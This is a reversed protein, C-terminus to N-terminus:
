ISAAELFLVAAQDFVNLIVQCQDATLPQDLGPIRAGAKSRITASIKQVNEEITMTRFDDSSSGLAVGVILGISLCRFIQQDDVDELGFAEKFSGREAVAPNPM